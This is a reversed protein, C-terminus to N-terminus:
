GDVARALPTPLGDLSISNKEQQYEKVGQEGKRAAWDVLVRRQGQLEYLPVGFGCSSQVRDIEAVVIQRAGPIPSFRAYWEPWELAEPLIVRGQGYLRLIQPPEQFACYM